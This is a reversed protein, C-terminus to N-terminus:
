FGAFQDCIVREADGTNVLAWVISIVSRAYHCNMPKRQKKWMLYLARAIADRTVHKQTICELELETVIDQTRAQKAKPKRYERQQRYFELHQEACWEPTYKVGYSYIVQVTDGEFSGHCMYREYATVAEGDPMELLSYGQNGVFAQNKKRFDERLTAVRKESFMVAHWHPEKDHDDAEHRIVLCGATNRKIWELAQQNQTDDQSLTIRLKFPAM